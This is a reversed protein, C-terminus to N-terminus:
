IKVSKELEPFYIPSVIKLWNRIQKYKMHEKQFQLFAQFIIALSWWQKLSGAM